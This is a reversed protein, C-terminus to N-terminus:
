IARGDSASTIVPSPQGDVYIAHGLVTYVTAIQLLYSHAHDEVVSPMTPLFLFAVQYNSVGPGMCEGTHGQLIWIHVFSATVL